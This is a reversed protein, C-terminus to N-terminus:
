APRQRHQPSREPPLGTRKFSLRTTLKKCRMWLQNRWACGRDRTGGTIIGLRYQAPKCTADM